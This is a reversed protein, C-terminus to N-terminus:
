PIQIPHGMNRAMSRKRTTPRIAEIRRTRMLLRCVVLRALSPHDASLALMKREEMISSASSTTRMGTKTNEIVRRRRWARLSFISQVLSATTCATHRFRGPANPTDEPLLLSLEHKAIFASRREGGARLEAAGASLRNACRGDRSRSGAGRRNGSSANLPVNLKQRRKPQHVSNQAKRFDPRNEYSSLHQRIQRTPSKAPTERVPWEVKQRETEMRDSSQQRDKADRRQDESPSEKLALRPRSREAQDESEQGQQPRCKACCQAKVGDPHQQRLM